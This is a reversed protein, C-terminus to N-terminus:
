INTCKWELSHYDILLAKLELTKQQFVKETSQDSKM